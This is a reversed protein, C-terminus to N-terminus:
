NVIATPVIEKFIDLGEQNYLQLNFQYITQNKVIYAKVQHFNETIATSSPEDTFIVYSEGSAITGTALNTRKDRQDSQTGTINAITTFWQRNTYGEYMQNTYIQIEIINYIKSRDLEGPTFPIESIFEDYSTVWNPPYQVSLGRSKSTFTKWNAGIKDSNAISNAEPSPSVSPIPGAISNTLNYIPNIVSVILIVILLFNIVFGSVLLVVAVFHTHSKKRILLYPGYIIQAICIFIMVGLGLSIISSNYNQGLSKYMTALPPIVFLLFISPIVVEIIGMIILSIAFISSHHTRTPFPPPQTQTQPKSEIPTTDM